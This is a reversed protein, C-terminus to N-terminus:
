AVPGQFWWAIWLFGFPPLWVVVAAVRSGWAARVAAAGGRIPTRRLVWAGPPPVQGSALVARSWRLAHRCFALACLFNGFTLGWWLARLTEVAEDTPRQQVAEVVDRLWWLLWACGGAALVLLGLAAWAQWCPEIHDPKSM